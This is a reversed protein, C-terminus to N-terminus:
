ENIYAQKVLIMSFALTLLIHTWEVVIHPYVVMVIIWIILIIVYPLAWYRRWHWLIAPLINFPIILWNWRTCPLPSLFVTYCVVMGMLTQIALLLCDIVKSCLRLNISKTWVSSLSILALVLLLIAMMLPTFWTSAQENRSEVLVRPSPELLPKGDITAKQWVAVLDEPIILKREQPLSGDIDSGALTMLAFRNWLFSSKTVSRYGIERLTGTFYDPWANYQIKQPKIAQNVIDVISIACGYHFYDYPRDAGLAIMQDVVRWLEQKQTPSLNLKYERVGRGENRYEDLILKPSASFMGMKLDGRLFRGWNDQISESEYTCFYDLNFAPCKLHLMAHGFSAYLIGGPDAVVLYAEVFDDAARDITDNFGQAANREAITRAHDSLSLDTDNRTQGFAFVSSCLLLLIIYVWRNM